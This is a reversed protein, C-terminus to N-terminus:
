QHQGAARVEAAIFSPDVMAAAQDGGDQIPGAFPQLESKALLSFLFESAIWLKHM